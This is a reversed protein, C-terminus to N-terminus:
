RGRPEQAAPPTTAAAPPEPSQPPLIRSSFIRDIRFYAPSGGFHGFSGIIGEEPRPEEYRFTGEAIIRRRLPLRGVSEPEPEPESLDGMPEQVREDLDVWISIKQDDALILDSQEFGEKWVGSLIIRRGSYNRPELLLMAAPVYEARGPAPATKTAYAQEFDLATPHTRRWRDTKWRAALVGSVAAIIALVAVVIIIRPWSM